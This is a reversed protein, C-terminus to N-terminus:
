QRGSLPHPRAVAVVVLAVVVAMSWPGRRRRSTPERHHRRLSATGGRSTKKAPLPPRSATAPPGPGRSTRTVCLRRPRLPPPQKSATAAWVHPRGGRAPMPRSPWPCPRQTCAPQAQPHAGALVPVLCKAATGTGMVSHLQQAALPLCQTCQTSPLQPTTPRQPRRQRPQRSVTAVLQIPRAVFLPCVFPVCWCRMLPHCPVPEGVGERGSCHLYFFLLLFSRNPRFRPATHWLCVAPARWCRRAPPVMRRLLHKGDLRALPQVGLVGQSDCMQRPGGTLGTYEATSMGSRVGARLHALGLLVNSM